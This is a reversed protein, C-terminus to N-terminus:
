QVAGNLYATGNRGVKISGNGRNKSVEVALADLGFPM